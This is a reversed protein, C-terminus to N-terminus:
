ISSILKNISDEFTQKETKNFNKYISNLQSKLLKDAQQYQHQGKATLTVDRQRADKKNKTIKVLRQRVMSLLQRSVNAETQRLSAAIVRQSRPVKTDLVGMIRVHSLSIGADGMLLEESLQQLVYTLHLLPTPSYDKNQKTSM